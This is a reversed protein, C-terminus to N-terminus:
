GGLSNLSKEKSQLTTVKQPGRLGSKLEPKWKSWTKRRRQRPPAYETIGVIPTGHSGVNECGSFSSDSFGKEIVLNRSGVGPHALKAGANLTETLQRLVNLKVTPESFRYGCSRCLFRQVQGKSLYRIGDKWVRRGGCEPCSPM